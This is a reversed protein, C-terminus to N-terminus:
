SSSVATGTRRAQDTTLTTALVALDDLTKLPSVSEEVLLTPIGAPLEATLKDILEDELRALTALDAWNAELATRDDARRGRRRPPSAAPAVPSRGFPTLRNVVVTDPRCGRATLRELIWGTERIANM